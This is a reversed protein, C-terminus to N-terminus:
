FGRKILLPHFFVEHVDSRILRPRCLANDAETLKWGDRFRSLLSAVKTRAIRRDVGNTLDGLDEPEALDRNVLCDFLALDGAHSNAPPDEDWSM